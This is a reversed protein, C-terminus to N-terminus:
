MNNRKLFDILDNNIIRYHNQKIAKYVFDKKVFKISENNLDFLPIHIKDDSFIKIFEDVACSTNFFQIACEFQFSEKSTMFLSFVLFFVSILLTM